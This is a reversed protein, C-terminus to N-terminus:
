KKLKFGNNGLFRYARPVFKKCIEQDGVLLNSGEIFEGNTDKNIKILNRYTNTVEIINNQIEQDIQDPNNKKIMIGTISAGRQLNIAANLININPSVENIAEFLSGCRLSFNALYHLKGVESKLNEEKLLEKLATMKNEASATQITSFLFIIAILCYTYKLFVMSNGMQKINKKLEM